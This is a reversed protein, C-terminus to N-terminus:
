IGYSALSIQSQVKFCCNSYFLIIVSKFLLMFYLIKDLYIIQIILVCVYIYLMTLCHYNRNKKLIVIDYHDHSWM